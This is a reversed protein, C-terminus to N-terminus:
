YRFKSKGPPLLSSAVSNQAPPYRHNGNRNSSYFWNKNYSADAQPIGNSFTSYGLSKEKDREIRGGRNGNFYSPFQKFPVSFQVPLNDSVVLNFLSSALYLWLMPVHLKHRPKGFFMVFKQTGEGFFSSPSPFIGGPSTYVLRSNPFVQCSVGHSLLFTSSLILSRLFCYIM